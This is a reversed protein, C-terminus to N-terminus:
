GAYTNSCGRIEANKLRGFVQFYKGMRGCPCDDVGLLVGEDETLLSHGPYSRPLVSLCQIVGPEGVSASGFDTARRIMVESFMSSHLNGRECELHISGTQEVMGYYDRIHDPRLGCSEELSQKFRTTGVALDALKKWGGGHILLGNRM